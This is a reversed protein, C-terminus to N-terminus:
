DTVIHSERLGRLSRLGTAAPGSMPSQGRRLLIPHSSASATKRMSRTGNPFPSIVMERVPKVPSEAILKPGLRVLASRQPIVEEISSLQM